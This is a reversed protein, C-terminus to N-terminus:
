CVLAVKRDEILDKIEDMVKVIRKGKMLWQLRRERREMQDVMEIVREVERGV